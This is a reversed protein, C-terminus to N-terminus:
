PEARRHAQLVCSKLALFIEQKLAEVCHVSLSLSNQRLHPKTIKNLLDKEDKSSWEGRRYVLRLVRIKRKM